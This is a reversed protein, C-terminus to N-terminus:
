SGWEVKKGGERVISESEVKENVKEHGSEWNEIEVKECVKVLWKERWIESTKRERINLEM